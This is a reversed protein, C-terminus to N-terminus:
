LQDSGATVRLYVGPGWVTKCPDTQTIRGVLRDSRARGLRRWIARAVYEGIAGLTATGADVWTRAADRSIELNVVPDVGQGSSLGVGAQIGLEVQDLFLWQNESAIYPWTRERRLIDGNDDYCDLDLAYLAGSEYDGVYIQGDISTSGRARWRTSVGLTSNWGARAHWLQERVDYVYTQIDDTSSPATVAIFPHGEQEYVLMEADDLTTCRSLFLVIPPTSIETAQPDSAASVIRRQGKANAAVWYFVDNYQGVLWPSVLGTQMATGPYPLFPTDIDGSDYFLTSTKSGWCWIRDRSVAIGVLNDSTGSRTFFDLADVSTFDELATYYVIPSDRQLILGYGDLFSMQVPGSFPLVVPTLLNTTLDLVSLTDGGVVGLQDGGQGNSAYSVPADDNPIAGRDVYTGNALREYLRDGVTVWTRSDQTFWGRTGDGVVTASLRLGPTGYFTTQKAKGQGSSEAYINVATEAAITQSLAQYTDGVFGSWLAM